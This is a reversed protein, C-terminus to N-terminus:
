ELSSWVRSRILILTSSYQTRNRARPSNLFISMLRATGRSPSAATSPLPNKFVHSTALTLKSSNEQWMWERTM